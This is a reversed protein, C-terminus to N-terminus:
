GSMEQLTRIEPEHQLLMSMERPSAQAIDQLLQQGATAIAVAQEANVLTCLLAKARLAILQLGSLDALRDAEKALSLAVQPEGLQVWTRAMWLGVESRRPAPLVNLQSQLTNLLKRAVADRGLASWCWSLLAQLLPTYQEPDQRRAAILGAQLHTRATSLQGRRICLQGYLQRSAVIDDALNMEEAITLSKTLDGEAGTWNGTEMRAWARLRFANAEAIRHLVQHSLERAEDATQLAATFQGQWIFLEALNIMVTCRLQNHNLQKLIDRVERMGTTAASLQGRIAQVTTLVLLIQARSVSVASSGAVALGQSALRECQDLNGDEWAHAALVHLADVLITRDAHSQARQLSSRILQAGQEKEGLRRLAQGLKLSSVAALRWDGAKRAALLLARWTGAAPQWSGQNLLIEGRIELLTRRHQAYTEEPLSARAAAEMPSMQDLLTSAEALLSGQKLYRVARTLHHWAAPADGARRFQEGILQAASPRDGYLTELVQGLARHLAVRQSPKMSQLLVDGYKRHSFDFLPDLGVQRAELLGEATLREIRNLTDEEDGGVVDLMVDIEVPRGAAAIVSVVRRDAPSLPALRNEVVQLVGPPIELEGTALASADHTLELEGNPGKLIAGRQILSRIFEAVFLPNGETETWLRRALAETGATRGLLLTVLDAVDAEVLPSVQLDTALFGLEEESRIWRMAASEVDDRTAALLLLGKSRVSLSRSLYGIMTLIPKSALHLNDILLLRPHNTLLVDLTDRLADFLKYRLDQEGPTGHRLANIAAHLNPPASGGLERDHYEALRLAADLVGENANIRLRDTPIDLRRAYREAYNLLRSKGTGEGGHLLLAGGQRRTLAGIAKEIPDTLPQRGVMPPQWGTSLSQTPSSTARGHGLAALISDASQYRDRPAKALLRMCIQELHQPVAAYLQSPPRPAKNQHLALYGSIDKASFPRRGTLMAYLIVGLSYLDSRHDLDRGSIQEPSAYAWTGVLTTSAQKEIDVDILKVIGFDTIHCRGDTDILVNSPKLDRHILGRAHIHKLGESMDALIQEVRQWRVDPLLDRFSRITQHLDTGEVYEMAIYPHGHIDGYSEVAIVNPHRVKVLARFERRFRPLGTKFRTAKLIKLAVPDGDPDEALVVLAMGGKGVQRVYRYPGIFDGPRITVGGMELSVPAPSTSREEPM